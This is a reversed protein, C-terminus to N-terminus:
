RSSQFGRSSTDDFPHLYSSSSSSSLPPSPPPVMLNDRRGEAGRYTPRRPESLWCPSDGRGTVTECITTQRAPHGRESEDESWRSKLEDM